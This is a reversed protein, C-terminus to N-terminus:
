RATVEQRAQASSNRPTASDVAVVAYIYRVGPKVDTDRYSADRIPQSTIPVLTDGPAEGRWVIYGALDAETNPEWVLNIAGPEAVARVDRPAQPAFTDTPTVCTKASPETEISVNQISQVGRVVYCQEKGFELGGHEFEIGASPSTNLPAADADSRYINFAVPPGDPEAVPPTWRVVVAKETYSVNVATPAALPTLLPVVVRGAAAGPRGGRSVGRIAYIRLPYPSAPVPAQPGLGPGVATAPVGAQPKQGAAALGGAEPKQTAGPGQGGAEPKQTAGPGQGGAEPKQTGGPGQGGAGPMVVPKLNEATLEEVFTVRDGPAPRKDADSASPQAEGEVPPPRVAITGVIRGKTLLDRNAPPSAGAGITVAYIEVRELDIPGPGNVNTTPLGFRLEMESGSRRATIESVAAPVLHLPALPPGKKGCAGALASAALLVPLYRFSRV